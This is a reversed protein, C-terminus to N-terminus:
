KIQYNNYIAEALAAREADSLVSIYAIKFTTIKQTNKMNSVLDALTASQGAFRQGLYAYYMDNHKEINLLEVAAEAPKDAQEASKEAATRLITYMMSVRGFAYCIAGFVVLLILDVLTM